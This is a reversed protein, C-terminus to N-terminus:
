KSNKTESFYDLLRFIEKIDEQQVQDGSQIEVKELIRILANKFRSAQNADLNIRPGLEETDGKNREIM